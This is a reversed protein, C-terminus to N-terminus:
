RSGFSIGADTPCKLAKEDRSASLAPLTHTKEQLDFLTIRKEWLIQSQVMERHEGCAKLFQYVRELLQMESCARLFEGGAVL